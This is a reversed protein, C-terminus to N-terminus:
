RPWTCNNWPRPTYWHNKREDEWRLCVETTLCYIREGEATKADFTFNYWAPEPTFARWAYAANTLLAFGPAPPPCTVNRNRDIGTGGGLPQQVSTFECFDAVYSESPRAGPPNGYEECHSGCDETGNITANPGFTDRFTGYIHILFDDEIYVPRKTIEVSTINFLDTPRSVECLSFPSGGPLEPYPLLAPSADSLGSSTLPKQSSFDWTVPLARLIDHFLPLQM